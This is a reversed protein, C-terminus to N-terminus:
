RATGAPPADPADVGHHAHDSGHGHGRMMLLHSLPCLLVLGFLLMSSLPVQFVTVAVIAAIPAMCLAMMWWPHGGQAHGQSARPTEM